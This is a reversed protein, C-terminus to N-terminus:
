RQLEQLRQQWYTSTFGEQRIPSGTGPIHLPGGTFPNYRNQSALVEILGGERRGVHHLVVPEWEGRSNRAFPANGSSMRQVNQPSLEIDSRQIVLEGRHNM